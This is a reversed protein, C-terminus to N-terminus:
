SLPSKTDDKSEILDLPAGIVLETAQEMGAFFVRYM